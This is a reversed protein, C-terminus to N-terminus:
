SCYFVFNIFGYIMFITIAMCIFLLIMKLVKNEVNWMALTLMGQLFIATLGFFLVVSGTIWNAKYQDIIPTAITISIVIIILILAIQRHLSNKLM